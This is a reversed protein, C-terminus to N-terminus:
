FKTFLLNASAFTQLFQALHTDVGIGCCFIGGIGIRGIDAVIEVVIILRRTMPLALRASNCSLLPRMCTYIERSSRQGSSFLSKYLLTNLRSSSMPSKM